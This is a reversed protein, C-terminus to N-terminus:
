NPAKDGSTPRAGQRWSNQLARTLDVGLKRARREVSDPARGMREAIQKSTWGNSALRLVESDQERTWGQKDFRRM